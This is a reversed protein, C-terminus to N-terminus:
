GQGSSRAAEAGTPRAHGVDLRRVRGEVYDALQPLIKSKDKVLGRSVVTSWTFGGCSQIPDTHKGKRTDHFSVIMLISKCNAEGGRLKRRISLSGFLN